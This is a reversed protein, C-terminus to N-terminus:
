NENPIIIRFGSSVRFGGDAYIPMSDLSIFLIIQIHRMEEKFHFYEKNSERRTLDM